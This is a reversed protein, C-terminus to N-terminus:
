NIMVDEDEYEEEEEDTEDESDSYNEEEQWNPFKYMKEWTDYGNLDIFEQTRKEHLEVLANVIDIGIDRDSKEEVSNEIELNHKRIIKGTNKDKKLLIWGPKLYELDSDINKQIVEEEKLLKEIYSNNVEENKISDPKIDKKIVGFLDPFKDISLAEQKKREKEEEDFKKQVQFELEREKRYRERQKDSFLGDRRNDRRDERFQESKFSNFTEEKKEVKVNSTNEKKINKNDNKQPIDDILSSFRSNTKFINSM